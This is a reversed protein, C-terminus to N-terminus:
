SSREPSLTGSPLVAVCQGTHGADRECVCGPTGETRRGCRAPIGRRASAAAPEDIPNGDVKVTGSCKVCREGDSDIGDVCSGCRPADPEHLRILSYEVHEIRRGHLACAEHAVGHASTFFGSAELVPKGCVTCDGRSSTMTHIGPCGERGCRCKNIRPDKM